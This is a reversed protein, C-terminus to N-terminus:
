SKNIAIHELSAAIRNVDLLLAELLNLSCEVLMTIQQREGPQLDAGAVKSALERIAAINGKIDNETM